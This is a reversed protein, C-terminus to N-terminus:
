TTTQAPTPRSSQASAMTAPGGAPSAAGPKCDDAPMDGRLKDFPRCRSVAQSDFVDNIHKVAKRLINEIDRTSAFDRSLAYLASTRRERDRAADAQRKIRTTLTSIVLAVVLM